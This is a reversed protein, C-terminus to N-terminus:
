VEDRSREVPAAEPRRAYGPLLEPQVKLLFAVCFSTIVGEIVM